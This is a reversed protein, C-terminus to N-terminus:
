HAITLMVDKWEPYGQRWAASVVASNGCILGIRQQLEQAHCPISGHTAVSMCYKDLKDNNKFHLFLTKDMHDRWTCCHNTTQPEKDILINIIKSFSSTENTV